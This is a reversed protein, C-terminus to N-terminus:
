SFLQTIISNFILAFAFAAATLGACAMSGVFLKKRVGEAAMAARYTCYGITVGMTNVVVDALDFSGLYTVMQLLELCLIAAVFAGLLAWYRRLGKCLVPGFIGIPIFAILNGLSFVWLRLTDMGLRKPLWLPIRELLLSYRYGYETTIQPRGFGFFMFYLLVALYIGFAIWIATRKKNM